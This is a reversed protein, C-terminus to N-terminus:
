NSTSMTTDSWGQEDDDVAALVAYKNTALPHGNRIEELAREEEEILKLKRQQKRRVSALAKHEQDLQAPTKKKWDEIKKELYTTM